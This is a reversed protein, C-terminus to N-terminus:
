GARNLAVYGWSLSTAVLLWAQYPLMAIGIWGSLGSGLALLGVTLVASCSLALAAVLLAHRGYFAWSWIVGLGATTVFLGIWVVAPGVGIVTPGQWGVVAVVVALMLFCYSWVTGFVWEPPQWWPKALSAYWAQSIQVWRGSGLAYGAVALLGVGALAFKLM